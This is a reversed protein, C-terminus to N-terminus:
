VALYLIVAQGDTHFPDGDFNVGSEPPALQITQASQVLGSGQLSTVVFAREADIDPDIQHTPLGTSPALEFGRDFSATALWLPLGDSTQVSTSWIRIHHREAFTSGVPMSFALANPQEALFAPTVPGAPAGRHTLAANIGVTVARFSFPEARTWGAAQFAADLRDRTGVFILSVPEQRAGTLGETFHPLDQEVMSPVADPTIVVPPIPEPQPPPPLTSATLGVFAATYAVALAGVVISGVARLRRMHARAAPARKGASARRAQWLHDAIVILAFWLLGLMWGALVDSPFHVGLYVRSVGVMLILLAALIAVLVKASDRRLGRILFYAAVGYFAASVTAHTSPFSFSTDLVRANVLPPRPRAFVFKLGEVSLWSLAAVLPLLLAERWRRAFLALLLGAVALPAVVEISGLWTAAYFLKAIRRDLAPVGTGYFVEISLEVVQELALLGLVIWATLALGVPSGPTFRAVLFRSFRPFRQPLGTAAVVAGLRQAGRALGARLSHRYRVLLLPAIIALLLTLTLIAALPAFPGLQIQAFRYSVVALYGLLLLGLIGLLIQLFRRLWSPHASNAQRQNAM